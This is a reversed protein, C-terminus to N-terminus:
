VVVVWWATECRQLRVDGGGAGVGGERAVSRWRERSEVAVVVVVARGGAPLEDWAGVVSRVRQASRADRGRM